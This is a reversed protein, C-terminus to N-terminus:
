GNIVQPPNIKKHGILYIGAAGTISTVSITITSGAAMAVQNENITVTGATSCYVQNYTYNDFDASTSLHIIRNNIM